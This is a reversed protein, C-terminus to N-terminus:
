LPGLSNVWKRLQNLPPGLRTGLDQDKDGAYTLPTIGLLDSPIKLNARHEHLIYARDRGIKSLFLGHEFVVNDRPAAITTERAVVKDDPAYVFVAFDSQNVMEALDDLTVGGPGFVGTTWINVIFKDHKYQEQIERAVSLSEASSGIFIVPKVNKPRHFRNRERLRRSLVSAMLRWLSPFADAIVALDSSRVKAAVVPGKANVTATRPEGPSITAIEGLLERSGREAVLRTNIYVSVDGSLIFYADSDSGGQEIICAGDKFDTITAVNAIRGAIEANGSVVEQSSLAHILHPRNDPGEFRSKM